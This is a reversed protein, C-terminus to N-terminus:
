LIDHHPTHSLEYLTLMVLSCRTGEMVRLEELEQDEKQLERWSYSRKRKKTNIKRMAKTEFVPTKGGSISSFFFILKDKWLMGPHLM